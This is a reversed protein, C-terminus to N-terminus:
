ATPRPRRTRPPAPPTGTTTSSFVPRRRGQRVDVAVARRDHGGPRGCRPRPRRGNTLGAKAVTPRSRSRGVYVWLQSGDTPGDEHGMVLTTDTPEGAPGRTRGPSCGSAPCRRRTAMRPSGSPAVTTATRRTASTSRARTAAGTSANFFARTSLTGSCFRGFTVDQARLGRVARGLLCVASPLGLVPRRSQDPGVRGQLPADESRHGLALRLRGNATAASSARCSRPTAGARPELVPRTPARRIMGLGDPIGVM